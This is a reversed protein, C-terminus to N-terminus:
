ECVSGKDMAACAATCAAANPVRGIPDPGVGASICKCQCGSKRKRPSRRKKRKCSLGDDDDDPDEYGPCYGGEGFEESLLASIVCFLQAVGGYPGSSGERCGKNISKACDATILGSSDVGNVPDNEIYAYLNTGGDFRIPDKSIWFCSGSAYSCEAHRKRLHM